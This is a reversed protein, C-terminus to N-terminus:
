RTHGRVMHERGKGPQAPSTAVLATAMAQIGQSTWRKSTKSLGEGYAKYLSVRFLEKAPM